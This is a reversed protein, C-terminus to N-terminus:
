LVTVQLIKGNSIVHVVKQVRFVIIIFTRRGVRTAAYYTVLSEQLVFLNNHMKQMYNVDHMGSHWRKAAACLAQTLLNHLEAKQEKILKWEGSKPQTKVAIRNM